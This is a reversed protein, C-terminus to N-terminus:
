VLSRISNFESKSNNGDTDDKRMNTRCNKSKGRWRRVSSRLLPPPLWSRTLVVPRTDYDLSSTEQDWWRGAVDASAAPSCDFTSKYSKNTLVFQIRTECIYKKVMNVSGFASSNFIKNTVLLNENRRWKDSLLTTKALTFPFIKSTRQQVSEICFTNFTKDKNGMYYINREM